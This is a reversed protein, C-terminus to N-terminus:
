LIEDNVIPDSGLWFNFKYAPPYFWSIKSAKDVSAFGNATTSSVGFSSDSSDLDVSCLFVVLSLSM